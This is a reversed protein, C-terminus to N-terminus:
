LSNFFIGGFFLTFALRMLSTRVRSRAAGSPNVTCSIMASSGRTSSVCRERMRREIGSEYMSRQTLM